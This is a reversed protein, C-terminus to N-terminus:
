FLDETGIPPGVADLRIPMNQFMQNAVHVFLSEQRALQFHFVYEHRVHNSLKLNLFANPMLCCAITPARCATSRCRVGAAERNTRAARTAWRAVASAPPWGSTIGIQKTKSPLSNKEGMSSFGLRVVRRLRSRLMASFGCTDRIM